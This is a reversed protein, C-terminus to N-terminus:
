EANHLEKLVRRTIVKALHLRTATSANLDEPPDLEQELQQLASEIKNEDLQGVLLNSTQETVVPQDGASFFVFRLDSLGGKQWQGTAALGIIAYDGHRRALEQFAARTNSSAIPIEVAVLIEDPTLATEYLGKYFDSASIRREGNVGKVVLNARLAVIVAPLEAAPDGFAVSGGFTGRNRIAPHAIHPMALSILPAHKEVLSSREVEVQRTLAGIKLVSGDLRIESLSEIRNIDVLLEPASLRMNLTAMLSQGGALIKADDGYQSLLNIAQDLTDPRAYAFAPAKM